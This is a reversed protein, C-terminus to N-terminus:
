GRRLGQIYQQVLQQADPRGSKQLRQIQRSADISRRKSLEKNVNYLEAESAAGTMSIENLQQDSLQSFPSRLKDLKTQRTDTPKRESAASMLGTSKSQAGPVYSPEIGYVGIGASGGGQQQTLAYTDVREQPQTVLATLATERAPRDPMLENLAGPVNVDSEGFIQRTRIGSPTEQLVPSSGRIATGMATKTVVAEPGINSVSREPLFEIDSVSQLSQRIPGAPLTTKTMSEGTMRPSISASTRFPQALAREYRTTGPKLGRSAIESRRMMMEQVAADAIEQASLPGQVPADTQTFAPTDETVSIAADAAQVPSAGSQELADQVQEFEALNEGPDRQVTRSVRMAQQDAGTDIAEVAQNAVPASSKPLINESELKNTWYNEAEGPTVGARALAAKGQTSTIPFRRGGADIELVDEGPMGAMGIGQNKLREGVTSAVPASSKFADTDITEAAQRSLQEAEQSFRKFGSGPTATGPDVYGRDQLQQALFDKSKLDDAVKEVKSVAAELKREQRDSRLESKLDAVEKALLENAAQSPTSTSVDYASKGSSFTEGTNPDTIRGPDFGGQPRTVKPLESVPKAAVENYVEARQETTPAVQEASAGGLQDNALGRNVLDGTSASAADAAGRAKQDDIFVKQNPFNEASLDTITVPTPRESKGQLGYRSIKEVDKPVVGKQGPAKRVGRLANRRGFAAQTGLAAAAGATGALFSGLFNNGQQSDQEQEYYDM